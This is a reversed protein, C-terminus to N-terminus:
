CVAVVNNVATQIIPCLSHLHSPKKHLFSFWKEQPVQLEVFAGFGSQLLQSHIFSLPWDAANSSPETILVRYNSTGVCIIPEYGYILTERPTISSHLAINLLHSCRQIVIKFYICLWADRSLSKYERGKLLFILPAITQKEEGGWHM